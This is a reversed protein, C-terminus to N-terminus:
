DMERPSISLKHRRHRMMLPSSGVHVTSVEVTRMLRDRNLDVPLMKGEDNVPARVASCIIDHGFQNGRRRSARAFVFVARVVLWAM